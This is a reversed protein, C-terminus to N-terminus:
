SDASPASSRRSLWRRIEAARQFGERDGHREVYDLTRLVEEEDAPYYDTRLFWLCRSRYDDVLDRVAKEIRRSLMGLFGRYCAVCTHFLRPIRARAAERVARPGLGLCKGCAGRFKPRQRRGAAPSLLLADARENPWRGSGKV